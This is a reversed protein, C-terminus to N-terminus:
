LKHSWCLDDLWTTGKESEKYVRERYTTKRGCLVCSYVTTRYWYKRKATATLKIKNRM